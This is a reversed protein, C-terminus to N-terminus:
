LIVGGISAGRILKKRSQLREEWTKEAHPRRSEAHGLFLLPDLKWNMQEAICIGLNRSMLPPVANGVQRYQQMRPISDIWIFDDSFSQIRASERVTLVRPYQYHVPRLPSFNGSGARLTYSLKDPHLKDHFTKRDRTGPKLQEFAEVMQPGHLTPEHNPILKSEETTVDPLDGIADQSTVYRPLTQFLSLPESCHTPTPFNLKQRQCGVVFVRKRMQAIGYDAAYLVKYDVHYGLASLSEIITSFLHGQDFKTINPVNEMIFVQPKVESVLRVFDFILQGRIDDLARRKGAISFAQCPPGGVLLDCSDIESIKLLEEGSLKSIDAVVGKAGRYSHNYDYCEISSRDFDIGSVVRFGADLLGTSFGGCGSFLDIAVPAKKMLKAKM